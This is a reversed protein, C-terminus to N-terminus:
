CRSHVRTNPRRHPLHSRRGRALRAHQEVDNVVANFNDCMTNLASALNLIVGQKDDLAVRQSFDGALAAKVIGGVAADFENMVRDTAAAREEAELRAKEAAKVKFTEVANAVDGIEDKRGLGSLVVNFNGGALELMGATLARM